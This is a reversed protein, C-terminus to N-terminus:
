TLTFDFLNNNEKFNSLTVNTLSIYYDCKINETVPSISTKGPATSSSSTSKSSSSNSNSSSSSSNSSSSSESSSDQSSSSSNTSSDTSLQLSLNSDPITASPMKVNFTVNYSIPM